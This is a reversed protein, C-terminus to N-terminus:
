NTPLVASPLNLNKHDITIYYFLLCPFSSPTHCALVPSIVGGWFRIQDEAFRSKGFIVIAPTKSTIKTKYTMNLVIVRLLIKVLSKLYMM